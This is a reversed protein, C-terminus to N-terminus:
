FTYNVILEFIPNQHYEKNVFVFRTGLDLVPQYRLMNMNAHLEFGYTKPQSLNTDTGINEYHCFVGGRINRLYALPGAEADPFAIPFRYNFLLTNILRSKAYINNYGYVTNIETTYSRIGSSEQYNFNALFSHNKAFGPFYFFSEAAFLNGSLQQDFPQSLYTLRVIQAWSPAIDRESARISHSFTFGTELPFRITTVYNAPMNEADYRKTFSTGTNVSFNFNHNRTSLSVPVVAQLQFYNERWDGQQIGKNTTGYFTRRPRNMFNANFIPYLSKFSVGANYEFRKLDRQYDIGAYADFTNLLNNSKLQLGGKYEDEIVPIVSHINFLNGLKRYPKSAFISDAPLNSFVNGTNEQEQAAEGFYVFNNKGAPKRDIKTKAVDYGSLKYNNFLLSDTGPIVSANFAGYKAASLATIKGSRPDAEYINDIGNYHANLMIRDGIFVPRSLQQQTESIVKSTKGAMDVTWLAKGKETVSLYTILEGTSNFAPMQLLMNEPNPFSRIIKGTKSDMVILKVKNSLDIEVATIKKGDASLSPSFIRSRRTLQNVKKTEFNYTYIVSYSRQQFRPDFHIEDWTLLKNAYNFWPEEQQGIGLLRHEKKDADLIVFAAPEAKSQKIVLIKGDPLAAPLYYNTEYKAQKNLSTYDISPSLEAQKKWDARLQETTFDYWEKGTRGSYKKLSKAFPYLRLPRNKIDTLVSDFVFKGASERIHSAMLYGLQYYGSTIDKSSGFNAKSYSFNRGELLATRYPMIWSPQRGRGAHTLSTETSVADGEFFWLPISAGMWAFYVDEPFPYPRGSTLKDFQAVHRLEHVALNNLWDQSDFQQPPTTNFESKKPGLQVFGNAVVGQNQFIIPITTKKVALSNGVKPFIYRITNAMRQAETEMEVPYILKFGNTNIQRWNVGLPNQEGGFLQAFSHQSLTILSILLILKLKFPNLKVKIKKEPQPM